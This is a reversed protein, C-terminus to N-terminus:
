AHSVPDMEPQKLKQIDLRNLVFREYFPESEGTRIKRPFYKEFAVKALHVWVGKAAWNVNRPPIQPQAVFAVGSDGFDALCVANWAACAHVPQDRLLADINHALATVMSEIMFGTKPVWVPVLFWSILWKAGKESNGVHSAGYRGADSSVALTARFQKVIYEFIRLFAVMFIFTAM